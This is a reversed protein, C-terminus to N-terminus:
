EWEGIKITILDMEIDYKELLKPDMFLKDPLTLALIGVIIPIIILLLRFLIKMNPTLMIKKLSKKEEKNGSTGKEEIKTEPPFLLIGLVGMLCAIGLWTCFTALRYMLMLTAVMEEDSVDLNPGFFYYGLFFVRAAALCIFLLSFFLWYPKLSTRYRMLLFYAFILFYYGVIIFYFGMELVSYYDDFCVERLIM